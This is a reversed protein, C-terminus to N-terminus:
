NWGLRMVNCPIKYMRSANVRCLKMGFRDYSQSIQTKLEKSNSSVWFLVFTTLAVTTYHNCMFTLCESQRVNIADNHM